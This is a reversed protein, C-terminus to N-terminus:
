SSPAPCKNTFIGSSDPDCCGSKSSADVTRSWYNETCVSCDLDLTFTGDCTTSPGVTPCAPCDTSPCPTSPCVTSPCPSTRPPPPTAALTCAGAGDCTSPTGATDTCSVTDAASEDAGCTGGVCTGALLCPNSPDASVCPNTAGCGDNELGERSMMCVALLGAVILIMNRTSEQKQQLAFYVLGAILLIRIM